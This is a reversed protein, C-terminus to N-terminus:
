IGFFLFLLAIAATGISTKGEEEQSVLDDDDDCTM